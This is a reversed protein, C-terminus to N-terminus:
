CLGDNGVGCMKGDGNADLILAAKFVVRTKPGTKHATCLKM